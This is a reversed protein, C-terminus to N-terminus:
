SNLFAMVDKLARADVLANHRGPHEKLVRELEMILQVAQDSDVLNQALASKPHRIRAKRLLGHLLTRDVEADSVLCIDAVDGIFDAILQAAESKTAHVPAAGPWELRPLVVEEVFDSALHRKFNTIAIYLERGDEGVLAISILDAYQFDTFETDFFILM